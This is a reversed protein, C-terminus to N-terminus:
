INKSIHQITNCLNCIVDETNKYSLEYTNNYSKIDNITKRITRKHNIQYYFGLERLIYNIETIFALTINIIPRIRIGNAKKYNTSNILHSEYLKNSIIYETTINEPLEYLYKINFIHNLLTTAYIFNHVWITVKLNQL